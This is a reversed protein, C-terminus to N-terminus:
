RTGILSMCKGVRIRPHTGSTRGSPVVRSLRMSDITVVEDVARGFSDLFALCPVYQPRCSILDASGGSTTLSGDLERERDSSERRCYAHGRGFAREIQYWTSYTLSGVMGRIWLRCLDCRRVSTIGYCSQDSTRRQPGRLDVLGRSIVIKPRCWEM